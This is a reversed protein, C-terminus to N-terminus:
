GEQQIKEPKNIIYYHWGMFKSGEKKRERTIYGLKQLERFASKHSDTGDSSISKLSEFGEFSGTQAAFCFVAYLGKAKLSLRPDGLAQFGVLIPSQVEDSVYFEENDM